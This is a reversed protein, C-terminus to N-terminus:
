FMILRFVFRRSFRKNLSIVVFRKIYSLKKWFSMAKVMNVIMALIAGIQLLFRMMTLKSVILEKIFIIITRIVGCIKDSKKERKM